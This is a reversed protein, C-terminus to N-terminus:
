SLRQLEDEGGVLFIKKGALVRKLFDTKKSVYEKETILSYNVVRKIKNEIERIKSHVKVSDLNGIIMIDIDSIGTERGEAVSGYIFALKIGHTMDMMKKLVDGIGETKLVISKLESYIPHNKNVSYYRANANKESLFIGAKELRKLERSVASVPEKTLREIERLYFKSDNNLFLLTMIKRASKSRVISDLM